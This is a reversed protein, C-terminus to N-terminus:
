VVGAPLQAQTGGKKVGLYSYTEIEKPAACVIPKCGSLEYPTEPKSCMKVQGFTAFTPLDVVTIEWFWELFIKGDVVETKTAFITGQSQWPIWRCM